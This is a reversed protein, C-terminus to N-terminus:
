RANNTSRARSRTATMAEASPPLGKQARFISLFFNVILERGEYIRHDKTQDPDDGARAKRAKRLPLIKKLIFFLTLCLGLGMLVLGIVPAWKELDRKEIQAQSVIDMSKNKWPALHHRIIVWIGYGKKLLGRQKIDLIQDMSIARTDEGARYFLSDGVVWSEDTIIARDDKLIIVQVTYIHQYTFFGGVAFLALCILILINTKM